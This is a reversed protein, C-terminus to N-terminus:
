SCKFGAPPPPRQCHSWFMYTLLLLDALEKVGSPKTLFANAGLEYAKVVDAELFSASLVITPIVGCTRNNKLWRLLDFGDAKPMKLDTVIMDPFPHESRDSFPPKAQLYHMAENGDCVRTLRAKLRSAELAHRFLFADEDSDEALLIALQKSSSLEVATFM